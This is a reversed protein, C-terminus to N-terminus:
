PFIFYLTSAIVVERLNDNVTCHDFWMVHMIEMSDWLCIYLTHKIDYAMEIWKCV